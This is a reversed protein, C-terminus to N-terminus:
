HLGSLLVGAGSARALLPGAPARSYYPQHRHPGLRARGREVNWRLALGRGCCAAPVRCARSPAESKARLIQPSTVMFFPRFAARLRAIM